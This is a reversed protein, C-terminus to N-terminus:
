RFHLAADTSFQGTNVFHCGFLSLVGAHKSSGLCQSALLGAAAYFMAYYARNIADRFHKGTLLERSAQLTERAQRLRYEVLQQTDETM